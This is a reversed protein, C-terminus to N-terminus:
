NAAEPKITHPLIIDRDKYDQLPKFNELDATFADCKEPISKFKFTESDWVDARYVVGTQRSNCFTLTKGLIFASYSKAWCDFAKFLVAAADKADKDWPVFIQARYETGDAEDYKYLSRPKLLDATGDDKHLVYPYWSTVFTTLDEGKLKSSTWRSYLKCFNADKRLVEFGAAIWKNFDFATKRAEKVEAKLGDTRLRKVEKVAAIYESDSLGLAEVIESKAAKLATNSQYEKLLAACIANMGDTTIKGQENREYNVTKMVKKNKQILCLKGM